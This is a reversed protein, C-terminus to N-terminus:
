IFKPTAVIDRKPGFAIFVSESIDALAFNSLSTAMGGGCGAAWFPRNNPRLVDLEGCRPRLIHAHRALM